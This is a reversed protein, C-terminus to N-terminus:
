IILQVPVVYEHMPAYSATDPLTRTMGSASPCKQMGLTTANLYKLQIHTYESVSNGYTNM